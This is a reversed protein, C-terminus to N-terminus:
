GEPSHQLPQFQPLLTEKAAIDPRQKPNDKVELSPCPDGEQVLGTAQYSRDRTREAEGENGEGAACHLGKMSESQTV